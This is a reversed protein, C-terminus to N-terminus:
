AKLAARMSNLMGYPCAMWLLVGPLVLVTLSNEDHVCRTLVFYSTIIIKYFYSIFCM